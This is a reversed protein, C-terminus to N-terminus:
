PCLNLCLTSCDSHDCLRKAASEDHTEAIPATRHASTPQDSQRFGELPREASDQAARETHPADTDVVRLAFLLMRPVGDM